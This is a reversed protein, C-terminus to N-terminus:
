LWIKLAETERKLAKDNGSLIINEHEAYKRLSAYDNTFGDPFYKALIYRLGDMYSRFKKQGSVSMYLRTFIYGEYNDRLIEHIARINSLNRYLNSGEIFSELERFYIVSEGDDLMRQTECLMNNVDDEDFVYVRSEILIGSNVILRRLEEDSDPLEIEYSKAYSRFRSYGETDNINFGYYSYHQTIINRIKQSNQAYDYEHTIHQESSEATSAEHVEEQEQQEPESELEHTDQESEQVPSESEPILEQFPAEAEEIVEQEAADDEQIIGQEQVEAEEIVNEETEHVCIIKPEETTDKRSDQRSGTLVNKIFGLFKNIFSSM